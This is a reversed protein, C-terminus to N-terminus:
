KKLIKLVQNVCKKQCTKSFYDRKEKSIVREVFKEEKKNKKAYMWWAFDNAMTEYDPGFIGGKFVEKPFNEKYLSHGIEHYLVFYKSIGKIEKSIYITNNESVYCVHEETPEFTCQPVPTKNTIWIISATFLLEIM